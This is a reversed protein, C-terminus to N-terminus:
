ELFSPLGDVFDRCFSLPYLTSFVWLFLLMTHDYVVARHQNSGTLCSVRGSEHLAISLVAIVSHHCLGLSYCILVLGLVAAM